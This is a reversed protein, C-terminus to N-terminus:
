APSSAEVKDHHPNTDIGLAQYADCHGTVGRYVLAGGGIAMASGTLGGRTLGLLALVAGGMVSAVREAEGVNTRSCHRMDAPWNKPGSGPTSTTTESTMTNHSMTAKEETSGMSVFPLVRGSPIAGQEYV